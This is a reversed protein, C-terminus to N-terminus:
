KRRSRELVEDLKTESRTAQQSHQNHEDELKYILKGVEGHERSQTEAMEKIQQRLAAQGSSLSDVKSILSRIWFILPTIVVPVVFEVLQLLDDM